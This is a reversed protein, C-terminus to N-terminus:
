FYNVEIWRKEEEKEIIKNVNEEDKEIIKNVNQKPFCTNGM